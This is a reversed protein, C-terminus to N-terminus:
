GVFINRLNEFPHTNPLYIGKMVKKILNMGNKIKGTPFGCHNQIQYTKQLTIIVVQLCFCFTKLICFIVVVIYLKSFSFM